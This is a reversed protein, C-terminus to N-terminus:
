NEEVESNLIRTLEEAKFTAATKKRQKAVSGLGAWAQATFYGNETVFQFSEAHTLATDLVKNLWRPTSKEGARIAYLLCVGPSIHVVDHLVDEQHVILERVRMRLQVSGLPLNGAQDTTANKWGLDVLKYGIQALEDETPPHFSM